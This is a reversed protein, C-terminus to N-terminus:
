ARSITNSRPDRPDQRGRVLFDNISVNHNDYAEIGEAQSSVRDAQPARGRHRTTNAHDSFSSWLHSTPFTALILVYVFFRPSAALM